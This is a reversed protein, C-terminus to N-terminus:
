FYNEDFQYSIKIMVNGGILLIVTMGEEGREGLFRRGVDPHVICGSMIKKRFKKFGFGGGGGRMLLLDSDRGNGCFFMVKGM